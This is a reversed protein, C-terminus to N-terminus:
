PTGAEDSTTSMNMKANKRPQCLTLGVLTPLLRRRHHRRSLPGEEEVSGHGANLFASSFPNTTPSHSCPWSCGCLLTSPGLVENLLANAGRSASAHQSVIEVAEQSEIYEWVQQPLTQSCWQQHYWCRIHSIVGDSALVICKDDSTLTHTMVVPEAIVGPTHLPTDDFFSLLCYLLPYPFFVSLGM